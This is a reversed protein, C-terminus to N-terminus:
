PEQENRGKDDDLEGLIRDLVTGERFCLEPRRAVLLVKGVRMLAQLAADLLDSFKEPNTAWAPDTIGCLVELQSFTKVDGGELCKLVREELPTDDTPDVYVSMSAMVRAAARVTFM